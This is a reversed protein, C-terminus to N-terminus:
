AWTGPSPQCYGYPSSGLAALPPAYSFQTAVLGFAGDPTRSLSLPAAATSRTPTGTAGFGYAGDPTGPLSLPAAATSRTPTGTAGYGTAAHAVAQAAETQGSAILYNVLDNASVLGPGGASAAVPTPTAKSMDGPFVTDVFAKAQDHPEPHISSKKYQRRRLCYWILLCIAALISVGAVICVAIITIKRGTSLGNDAPPPPPRPPPPSPSPPPVTASPTARVSITRVESVPVGMSQLWQTM